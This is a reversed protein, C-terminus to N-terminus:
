VGPAQISSTRRAGRGGRGSSRRESSLVCGIVLVSVVRSADSEVDSRSEGGPRSPRMPPHPVSWRRIRNPVHSAAIMTRPANAGETNEDSAPAPHCALPDSDTCTRSRAWCCKPPLAEEATCTTTWESVAVTVSGDIRATNSWIPRSRDASGRNPSITAGWGPMVILRSPCVPMRMAPAFADVSSITAATSSWVAPNVARDRSPM